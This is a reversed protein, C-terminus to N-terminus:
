VPQGLGRIIWAEGFIRISQNRGTALTSMVELRKRLPPIATIGQQGAPKKLGDTFVSVYQGGQRMEGINLSRTKFANSLGGIYLKPAVVICTEGKALCDGIYAALLRVPIDEVAYLPVEQKVGRVHFEMAPVIVSYDQLNTM